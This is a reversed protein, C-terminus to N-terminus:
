GVRDKLLRVVGSQGAIALLTGDEAFIHMRGHFLGASVASLKIDCLLWPTPARQIIRIVNDLSVAGAREGINMHLAEPIYDAVLALLKASVPADMDTRVWFCARGTPTARPDLALRMDLEAHLDGADKRVFPIPPSADPPPVSPAAEWFFSGTEDREGLAANVYALDQGASTLAAQIQTLARGAKTQRLEVDFTEGCLPSAFFQASAYILPRGTERELAAIVSALSAGGSVHKAEPPGLCLSRHATMRWRGEDALPQPDILGLIAAMGM